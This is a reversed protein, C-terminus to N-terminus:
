EIRIMGDATHGFVEPTYMEFVNCAPASFEGSVRAKVLYTYTHDGKYLYIPSASVRDSYFEEHSFGGWWNIKRNLGKLNVFETAFEKKIVEFGAPLNDELMVFTRPTKTRIKINVIYFEGKKFEKVDGGELDTYKREVEFGNFLADKTRKVAYKLRVTYYLRGTGTKILELVNKGEKFEKSDIHILEAQDKRGTFKKRADVRGNFKVIGEFQPYEKEYLKFYETLAELALATTHTNIWSGNKMRNVLYSATQEAFEFEGETTLIMSLVVASNKIENQFFWCDYMKDDFMAYTAEINVNGKLEALLTKYESEYGWSKLPYLMRAKESMYMRDRAEFISKVSKENLEENYLSMVYMMFSRLSNYGYESYGWVTEDRKDVYNRIYLMGNKVVSEDVEYGSEKAKFIVYM